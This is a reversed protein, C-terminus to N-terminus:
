TNGREVTAEGNRNITVKCYDGFMKLMVADDFNKMMAVVSKSAKAKDGFEGADGAHGPGDWDDSVGNIFISDEYDAYVGFECTDNYNGFPTYQLWGFSKLDPFEAFIELAFKKFVEDPHTM